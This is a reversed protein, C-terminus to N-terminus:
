AHAIGMPFDFVMNPDVKNKIEQLRDVASGYYFHGWDFIKVLLQNDVYNVYGAWKADPKVAQAADIIKDFAAYTADQGGNDNNKPFNYSYLQSLYLSDRHVYSSANMPVQNPASHPGLFAYSLSTGYDKADQIASMVTGFSTSDYRVDSPTVLSKAYYAEPAVTTTDLKGMIDTLADAWSTFEKASVSSATVGRASCADNYLKMAKKYEDKTGLFQGSLACSYGIGTDGTILLEGGINKSWGADASEATTLDQMALFAKTCDDNTKFQHAYNVVNKPADELTYTFETVIGFNNSGAGRLAWWLDQEEDANVTVITGDPKVLRMSSIHDMLFGWQYSTLGYGGGLGHGGTGVTPCTGHPLAFGDKALAAAMPGLKSGAGVKATKADKNTDIANLKKLDVVVWGDESGLTYGTYSHGGSRPSIKQSGNEASVCKVVAAVGTEDSPIAFVGPKRPPLAANQQTDLTSFSDADPYSLEVGTKSLCSQLSSSVTANGDARTLLSSSAPEFPSIPFASSSAVLLAAATSLTSRIAPM